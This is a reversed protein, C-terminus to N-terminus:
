IFLLVGFLPHRITKVCNIPVKDSYATKFTLVLKAPVQFTLCKSQQTRLHIIICCTVKSAHKSPTFARYFTNLKHM